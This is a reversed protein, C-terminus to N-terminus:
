GILGNRRDAAIADTAREAPPGYGGGGPTSMLITGGPKLVHQRKPDADAGDIQLVGRGGPQGGAVGPAAFRTREALFALVMPDASRSEFLIDQGLGGRHRGDGGSDPRLRKYLVRCPIRHEIVEAPTIAVNSPWSLCSPGDKVSTAGVGGNFFLKNSFPRGKGDLGRMLVSWIPSGSGAMIREPVVQSLAGFLAFPLYHGLMVRSCGSAPFEHNLMCGSPAAVAIPRFAGENNPLDPLLVSKLGFVTQAYTYSFACNLANPLQRSSGGYDVAITDGAVTVAVKILLPQDLGDTQMDYAYIGDPIAAISQRMAAESRDFVARAFGDLAAMGYQRMLAVVRTEILSLTSVQAWLDGEVEDPTRVNHRLIQMLCANVEGAECLKMTPIRFGEEFVDRSETSGTRGGMDPAHATSAAFGVLVGDFFIPKAVSVDALHGTAHWPDNTILVDGPSLTERPFIDLFHRVTLPLSGIFAPISDPPQVLGRGEADTIMCSFDFSERVLTSFSTRVLAASAERVISIFRTWLVQLTIPDFDDMM